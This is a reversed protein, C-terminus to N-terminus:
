EVTLGYFRKLNAARNQERARPTYFTRDRPGRAKQQSSECAKCRPRRGSRRDPRLGFEELSKVTKCLSCPKETRVVIKRPGTRRAIKVCEKCNAHYSGPRDLNRDKRRYFHELTKVVHCIKCAKETAVFTVRPKRVVSALCTKCKVGRGDGSRSSRYFTDLPKEVLCMRCLKTPLTTM